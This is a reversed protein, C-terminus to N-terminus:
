PYFEIVELVISIPRSSIKLIDLNATLEQLDWEIKLASVLRELDGSPDHM